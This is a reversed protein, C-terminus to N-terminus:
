HEDTLPMEVNEVPLLRIRNSHHPCPTPLLDGARLELPCLAGPEQSSHNAWGCRVQDVLVPELSQSIKFQGQRTHRLGLESTVRIRERREHNRPRLIPHDIPHELGGSAAEYGLAWDSFCPWPTRGSAKLETHRPM